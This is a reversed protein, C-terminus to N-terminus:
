YGKERIKTEGGFTLPNPHFPFARRGKGSGREM